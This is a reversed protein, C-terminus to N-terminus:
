RFGPASGGSGVKRMDMRHLALLFTRDEESREAGEPLLAYHGDIIEWIEDRTEALQLNIALNELHLRRHELANSQQREYKYHKAM